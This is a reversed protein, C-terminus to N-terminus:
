SPATARPRVASGAMRALRHSPKEVALYFLYCIALTLPTRLLWQEGESWTPFIRGPLLNAPLHFIYLSYSWAGARELWMWPRVRQGYSLERSLWFMTLIGFFNLTLDSHLPSHFRLELLLVSVCYVTCRWVWIAKVSPAPPLEREALLCGMLWCPLGLLADNFVNGTFYNGFRNPMVIAWTFAIAFSAATLRTWGVCAAVRVLAPYISYFLLECFLSWLVRGRLEHDSMGLHPSLLLAAGLPVGIRLYRRVFYDAGIHSSTRQPWHICFGSIVFFVIVAAPGNFLDRVVKAVLVAEHGARDAFRWSSPSHSMVVTYAAVFRIADLGAFRKVQIQTLTRGSRLRGFRCILDLV